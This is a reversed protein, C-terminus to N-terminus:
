CAPSFGNVGVAFGLSQQPVNRQGSQISGIQIAMRNGLTWSTGIPCFIWDGFDLVVTLGRYAGRLEMSGLRRAPDPLPALQELRRFLQRRGIGKSLMMRKIAEKRTPDIELPPEQFRWLHLKSAWEPTLKVLADQFRQLVNGTFLSSGLCLTIVISTSNEKGKMARRAMGNIPSRNHRIEAASDNPGEIAKPGLGTGGV